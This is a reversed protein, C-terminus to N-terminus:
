NSNVQISEKLYWVSQYDYGKVMLVGNHDIFLNVLDDNIWFPEYEHLDVSKMIGYGPIAVYYFDGWKSFINDMATRFAPGVDHVYWFSVGLDKSSYITETLGVDSCIFIEDDDKVYLKQSYNPTTIKTWTQGDDDSM